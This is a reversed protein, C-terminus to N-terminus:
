RCIWGNISFRSDEFKGSRCFTRRVAHERDSRFFLITNNAPEVLVPSKRGPRTFLKLEGGTFRRPAGHLYYVFTIVRRRTIRDGNDSHVNFFDGDNHATVQIEIKRVPFGKQGLSRAVFPVCSKILKAIFLAPKPPWYLVASKRYNKAGTTTTSAEFQAQSDRILALLGRCEEPRLFNEIRCYPSLGDVATAGPM